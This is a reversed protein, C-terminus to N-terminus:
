LPLGSQRYGSSGLSQVPPSGKGAPCVARREEVQIHFDAVTFRSDRQPAPPASGILERGQAQVLLAASIYAGDVSQGPPKEWGM